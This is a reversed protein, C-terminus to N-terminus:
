TLHKSTTPIFEYNMVSRAFLIDHDPDISPLEIRIQTEDIYMM